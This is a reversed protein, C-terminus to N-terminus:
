FRFTDTESRHQCATTRARRGSPSRRRRRRRRRPWCSRQWSRRRTTCCCCRPPCWRCRPRRRRRRPCAAVVVVAAAAAAVAAAAAAAAASGALLLLLLGQELGLPDLPLLTSEAPEGRRGEAADEVQAAAAVVAVAAAAAGVAAGAAVAGERGGGRGDLVLLPRALLVLRRSVRRALSALALSGRLSDSPHQSLSPHFSSSSDASKGQRNGNQITERRDTQTIDRGRQERQQTHRRVAPQGGPHPRLRHHSPALSIVM